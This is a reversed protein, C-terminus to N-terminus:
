IKFIQMRLSFLMEQREGKEEELINEKEKAFTPALGAL